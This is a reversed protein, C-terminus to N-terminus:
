FTISLQLPLQCCVYCSNFPKKFSLSLLNMGQKKLKFHNRIAFNAHVPTTVILDELIITLITKREPQRDTKRQKGASRFLAEREEEEEGQCRWAM